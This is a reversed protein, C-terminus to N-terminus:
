RRAGLSLSKELCLRHAPRFGARRLFSLLEGQEWDVETRLVEVHLARLNMELQRLLAAAVHHGRHDPHVGIADLVASPDPLGFEGQFFTVTLFGVVVGDLEAALSLHISSEELSRRIRQKYFDRRTVLTSAQDIKVVAELDDMTLTRVTVRDTDLAGAELEDLQRTM